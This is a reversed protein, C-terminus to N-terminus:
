HAEAENFWAPLFYGDAIRMLLCPRPYSRHTTADGHSLILAVNKCEIRDFLLVVQCPAAFM